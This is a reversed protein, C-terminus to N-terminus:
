TGDKLGFSPVQDLAVSLAEQWFDSNSSLDGGEMSFLKAVRGWQNESSLLGQQSIIGANNYMQNRILFEASFCM